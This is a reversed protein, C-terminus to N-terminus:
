KLALNEFKNKLCFYRYIMGNTNNGSSNQLAWKNYFQITRESALKLARQFHKKGELIGVSILNLGAAVVLMKKCGILM